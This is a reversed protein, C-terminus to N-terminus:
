DFGPEYVLDLLGNAIQNSYWLPSVVSFHLPQCRIQHGRRCYQCIKAFNMDTKAFEYKSHNFYKCLFQSVISLFVPDPVTKLEIAIVLHFLFSISSPFHNFCYAPTIVLLVSINLFPCSLPLPPIIMKLNTHNNCTLFTSIM